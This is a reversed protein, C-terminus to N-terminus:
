LGGVANEIKALTAEWPWALRPEGVLSLNSRAQMLLARAQDKQNRSAAAIAMHMWLTAQEQLTQRIEGADVGIIKEDRLREFVQRTEAILIDSRAWAGERLTDDTAADGLTRAIEAAKYLGAGLDRRHRAVSDYKVLERRGLVSQDAATQAAQFRGLALLQKAVKLQAIALSRSYRLRSPDSNRARSAHALAQEFLMLASNHDAKRAADFRELGCKEVAADRLAARTAVAEGQTHFNIFLDHDAEASQSETVKLGDFIIKSQAAKEVAVELQKIAEDFRRGAEQSNLAVFALEGASAHVGALVVALKSEEDWAVAKSRAVLKDFGPTARLGDLFAAFEVYARQARTVLETAALVQEDSTLPADEATRVYTYAHARRAQIWARRCADLQAPSEAPARAALAIAKAYRELAVELGQRAASYDRRSQLLMASRQLSQAYDYHLIWSEPNAEVLTRRISAAREHNEIADKEDGERGDYLDSQFLSLRHYAEALTRLMQPEASFQPELAKLRILSGAVLSRLAPTGGQLMAIQDAAAFTTTVAFEFVQRANGDARRRERTEADLALRTQAQAEAVLGRQRESERYMITIAVAFICLAALLISAAAVTGKYRSLTKSIVYLGSDRKAEIPEGSLYHRLDRALEGANQYRRDREKALCKLIITEVENNIQKRLTSPRSPQARLINELVDRMNGVVIYPFKGTLMQYLMVGLSYVDTRVDIAGSAGEAQEPSAWPLSGIFQGTATMVRAGQDPNAIDPTAIKALGFDVVIPEGNNDIRINAPKLDRHIVGRLHAANVADCVKIFLSITERVHGHEKSSRLVEDLSRGSIYDMVYYFSGDKAVGSDLIGVINPHNLQGLIQVEREFRGRGSAGTFPGGHILKIAVKRKTTKQLAQYVVGQGGRHIERLIDYGPFADIPLQDAALAASDPRPSAQDMADEILDRDSKRRSRQSSGGAADSTKKGVEGPVAASGASHGAAPPNVARDEGKPTDSKSPPQRSAHNVDNADNADNADDDGRASNNHQPSDSTM